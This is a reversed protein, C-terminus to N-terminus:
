ATAFSCPRFLKVLALGQLFFNRGGRSVKEPRRFKKPTAVAAIPVGEPDTSCFTRVSSPRFLSFSSFIKRCRPMEARLKLRWNLM